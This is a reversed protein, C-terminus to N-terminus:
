WCTKINNDKSYHVALGGQSTEKYNNHMDKGTQYMTAIVTDFNIMKYDSLFFALGCADVARLAAVANREICPIQVYGNIPDCTLGLHHEMAIEAAYEVQDITLKFLTAHAAAAMSCASGVEAQCGAEAGSISANTKIINGILGAVGLAEIIKQDNFSYKHQMYNLVAPLVGCAGCTPATVIMGGSANEENVAFAYASILRNETIEPAEFKMKRNILTNAKRPVRLTGPLVGTRDLGNQISEKMKNWIMQLFEEIEEGENLKVYEYLTINHELCYAKIDDFYRHKYILPEEEKEGKFLIRGGGVSYVEETAILSDSEDFVKFILTNPHKEEDILFEFTVEFGELQKEIALDTLHGKGTLALSNYLEVQYKKGNPYRNKIIKAANSPGMTHSSSPGHGVRYLARISQMM